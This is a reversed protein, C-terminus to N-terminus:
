LGQLLGASNMRHAIQDRAASEAMFVADRYAALAAASPPGRSEIEVRADDLELQIDLDLRTDGTPYHAMMKTLASTYKRAADDM